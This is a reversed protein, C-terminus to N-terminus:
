AASSAVPPTYVSADDSVAGPNHAPMAQQLQLPHQRLRGSSPRLHPPPPSDCAAATPTYQSIRVRLTASSNPCLTIFLVCLIATDTDTADGQAAIPSAFAYTELNTRRENGTGGHSGCLYIPM